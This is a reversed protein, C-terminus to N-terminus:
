RAFETSGFTRLVGSLRPKQPVSPAFIWLHLLSSPGEFRAPAHLFPPRHPFPPCLNAFEKL